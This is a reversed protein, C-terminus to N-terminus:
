RDGCRSTCGRRWASRVNAVPAFCPLIPVRALRALVVKRLAKAVERRQPLDLAAMDDLLMAATKETEAM